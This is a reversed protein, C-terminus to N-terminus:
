LEVVIWVTPLCNSGGLIEQRQEDNLEELRHSVTQRRRPFM